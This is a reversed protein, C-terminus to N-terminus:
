EKKSRISGRTVRKPSEAEQNAAQNVPNTEFAFMEKLEGRFFATGLASL